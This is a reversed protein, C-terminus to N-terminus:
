VQSYKYLYAQLQQAPMLEGKSVALSLGKQWVVKAESIAGLLEQARGMLIYSQTYKDDVSQLKNLKILAAPADNKALDMEALGCLAMADFEDIALVDLFMKERAATKEKEIKKNKAEQGFKLFSKLTAEEKFKEAEEIRGLKMAYLSLNTYPMVENPLIKAVEHMQEMAELYKNTKGYIAGLAEHWEALMHSSPKLIEHSSLLLKLLYIADEPRSSLSFLEIAYHYIEDAITNAAGIKAVSCKLSQGSVVVAIELAPIQYQRPLSIFVKSDVESSVLGAITFNKDNIKFESDSKIVINEKQFVLMWPYYAAGRRAFIKQVVEQGLFCGKEHNWAIESAITENFLPLSQNTADLSFFGRHLYLYQIEEQTLSEVTEDDCDTLVVNELLYLFPEGTKKQLLELGGYIYKEKSSIINLSVEEAVIFSELRKCTTALQENSTWILFKDKESYTLVFFSEIRGQRNLLCNYQAEGEILSKVCNSTQGQLFSKADSGTIEICALDITTKFGRIRKFFLSDM